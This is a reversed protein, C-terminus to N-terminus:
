QNEMIKIYANTISLSILMERFIKRSHKKIASTEIHNAHCYEAIFNLEQYTAQELNAKLSTDKLARMFYEVITLQEPNPSRLKKKAAFQNVYHTLKFNMEILQEQTALKLEDNNEILTDVSQIILDVYESGEAQKQLSSNMMSELARIVLEDPFYRKSWKWIKSLFKMIMCNMLFLITVSIRKGACIFLCQSM